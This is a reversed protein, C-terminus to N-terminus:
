TYIVNVSKAKEGEGLPYITFQSGGNVKTTVNTFVGDYASVVDQVAGAVAATTIRDRRTGLTLGAIFPAQNWFYQSIAEALDLKLADIDNAQLGNITVDFGTRTIAFVSVLANVPRRSALGNDDLEIADAVDDLQTPTPIGDPNLVTAETECYVNVEGPDGTYPYANIIGEVSEAWFEYDALAGGQPQQRFRDIVRQRYVEWDEADVGTTVESDVVADSVVNPIPNVFSVIDGVQLNGIAGRGGGDNQDASARINAQVVPATLPVSTLTLYTVGNDVNLLQSNVALSGTQNTVTINVIYEARIAADPDGVGVLRGLEILPTVKKGNITTVQTSAFQPFQQLFTFGGYKYLVVLFAALVKSIVNLFAKPLFPITQGFALELQALIATNLEAVTPVQLSM